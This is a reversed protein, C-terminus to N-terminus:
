QQLLKSHLLLGELRRQAPPQNQNGLAVEIVRTDDRSGLCSAKAYVCLPAVIKVMREEGQQHSLFLAAVVGVKSGHLLQRFCQLVGEDKIPFVRVIPLTRMALGGRM